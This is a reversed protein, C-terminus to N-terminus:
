DLPLEDWLGDSTMAELLPGLTMVVERLPRAAPSRTTLSTSRVLPVFKLTAFAAVGGLPCPLEELSAGASRMAPIDLFGVDATGVADALRPPSIAEGPGILKPDLPPEDPEKLLGLSGLEGDPPALAVCFM